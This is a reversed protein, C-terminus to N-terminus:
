SFVMKEKYYITRSGIDWESMMMKSRVPQADPKREPASPVPPLMRATGTRM